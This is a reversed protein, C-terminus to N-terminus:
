RWFFKSLLFTIMYTAVVARVILGRILSLLEDKYFERRQLLGELGKRLVFFYIINFVALGLILIEIPEMHRNPKKKKDKDWSFPQPYAKTLTLKRPM